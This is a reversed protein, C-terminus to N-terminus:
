GSSLSKMAKTGIEMTDVVSPSKAILAGALPLVRDVHVAQWKPESEDPHDGLDFGYRGQLAYKDDFDSNQPRFPVNDFASHRAPADYPLLSDLDLLPEEPAEQKVDM